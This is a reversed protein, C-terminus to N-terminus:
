RRLRAALSSVTGALRSSNNGGVKTQQALMIRTEFAAASEGPLAFLPPDLAAGAVEARAMREKEKQRAEIKKPDEPVQYTFQELFCQDDFFTKPSLIFESGEKGSDRAYQAYRRVGELMEEWSTTMLGRRIAIMLKMSGWQCPGSRAPYDRMLQKNWDQPLEHM